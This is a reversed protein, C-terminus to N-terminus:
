PKTEEPNESSNWEGQDEENEWDNWDLDTKCLMRKIKM